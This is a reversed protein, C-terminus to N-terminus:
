SGNYVLYRHNKEDTVILQNGAQYVGTPNFLTRASPAADPTGDQDDDNRASHTFDSQGLVADAAAFNSTPFTNWILARNNANDLVVLKTGDSWVGAPYNLTQASPADTLGDNNTDNEACHDFDQQGLVIDAATNVMSPITNWILVRNNSSDTVILKGGVAWQGEPTNLGTSNCLESGATDLDPAGLVVDAPAGSTPISNWILIRSNGYSDLFMKGNDFTPTEVRSFKTASAGRTTTMFDPQGLVFDAPTNHVTPITNFGLLRNNGYDGLYLVGDSIGANGYPGSFTNAAAPGGQNANGSVFNAQGIVVDAARFTGFIPAPVTEGTVSGSGGGGCATLVLLLGFASLPTKNILLM